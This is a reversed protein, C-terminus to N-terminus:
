KETHSLKAKTIQINQVNKDELIERNKDLMSLGILFWDM